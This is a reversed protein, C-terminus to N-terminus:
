GLNIEADGTAPRRATGQLASIPDFGVIDTIRNGEVVIDKPGSAPTGNGDVVMANRIVIRNYRKGGAPSKAQAFSSTVLSCALLWLMLLRYINHRAFHISM